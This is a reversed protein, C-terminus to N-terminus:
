EGSACEHLGLLVEKLVGSHLHKCTGERSSGDCIVELCQWGVLGAAAFFM